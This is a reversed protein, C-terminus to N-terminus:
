SDTAIIITKLCQCSYVEDFTLVVTALAVVLAALVTLTNYLDRLCVFVNFSGVGFPVEWESKSPLFSRPFDREIPNLVCTLM